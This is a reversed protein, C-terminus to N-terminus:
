FSWGSTAKGEGHYSRCFCRRRRPLDRHCCALVECQHEGLNRVIVVSVLICSSCVQGDRHLCWELLRERLDGSELLLSDMFDADATIQQGGGSSTHLSTVLPCDLESLREMVLSALQM